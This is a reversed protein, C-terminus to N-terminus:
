ISTIQRYLAVFSLAVSALLGLVFGWIAYKRWTLEDEPGDDGFHRSVPLNFRNWVDISQHITVAILLITMLSGALVFTKAQWASFLYHLASKRDVARQILWIQAVLVSLVIAYNRINDCIEKM